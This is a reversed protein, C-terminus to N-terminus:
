WNYPIVWTYCTWLSWSSILSQVHIEAHWKLTCWIWLLNLIFSPFALSQIRESKRDPVLSHKCLPLDLFFVCLMCNQWFENLWSISGSLFLKECNRVKNTRCNFTNWAVLAFRLTDNTQTTLPHRLFIIGVRAYKTFYNGMVCEAIVFFTSCLLVLKNVCSSLCSSFSFLYPSNISFSIFGLVLNRM